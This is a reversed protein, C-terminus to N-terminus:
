SRSIAASEAVTRPIAEDIRRAFDHWTFRVAQCRSAARIAGRELRLRRLAASLTQEFSPLSTPDFYFAADGGPKRYVPRIPACSRAASICQKWSLSGSGKSFLRISRWRQV